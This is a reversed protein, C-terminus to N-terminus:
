ERIHISICCQTSCSTRVVCDLVCSGVSTFVAVCLIAFCAGAVLALAARWDIADAHQNWAREASQYLKTFAAEM